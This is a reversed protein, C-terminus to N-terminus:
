DSDYGPLRRPGQYNSERRRLRIPRRYFPVQWADWQSTCVTEALRIEGAAQEALTVVRKLGPENELIRALGNESTMRQAFEDSCAAYFVALKREVRELQRTVETPLESVEVPLRDAVSLHPRVAIPGGENWSWDSRRREAWSELSRRVAGLERLVSNLTRKQEARARLSHDLLVAGFSALSGLLAGILGSLLESGSM